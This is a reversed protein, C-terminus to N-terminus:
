NSNQHDRENRLEDFWWKRNALGLFLQQNDKSSGKLNEKPQEKRGTSLFLWFSICFFTWFLCDFSVALLFNLIFNLLFRRFSCGFPFEFHLEFSLTSLFLWFSIWCPIWFFADFPVALLSNLIFNRFLCDFPFTFPVTSLFNLFNSDETTQFHVVLASNM